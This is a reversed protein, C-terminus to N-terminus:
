TQIGNWTNIWMKWIFDEVRKEIEKFEYPIQIDVDRSLSNKVLQDAIDHNLLGKHSPVWVICSSINARHIEERIESLLHPRISSFNFSLDKVAGLCDSIIVLHHINNDIGYRLGTLIAFLEG